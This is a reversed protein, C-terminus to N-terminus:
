LHTRSSQSNRPASSGVGTWWLDRTAIKHRGTGEAPPSTYVEGGTSSVAELAVAPPLAAVHCLHTRLSRSNAHRRSGVGSRLLDRKAIKHYDTGSRHLPSIFRLSDLFPTMGYKIRSRWDNIHGPSVPDPDPIVTQNYFERNFM